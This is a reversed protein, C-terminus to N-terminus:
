TGSPPRDTESAVARAGPIVTGRHRVSAVDSDGAFPCEQQDPLDVTRHENIDFPDSRALSVGSRGPSGSPYGALYHFYAFVVRGVDELDREGSCYGFELVENGDM